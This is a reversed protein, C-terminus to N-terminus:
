RKIEKPALKLVKILTAVEEETTLHSFCIRISSNARNMDNYIAEIVYSYPDKRASCASVTSVCIDHKELYGAVVAAKLGKLSVNLIYPSGNSPSNIQFNEDGKLVDVVEDYYHKVIQYHKESEEFAIRLTKALMVNVPWNSTGARLEYEQDGGVLLPELQVARKKVLLGSGKLGYLKHASLSLLDINALNLPLKGIGQTADVHFFIHPYNEKLFLAIEEIDNISGTENNVQMISVLITDKRIASKLVQLEVKGDQNVPLYTVEFGFVKELQECVKLVSPHEVKTTIIHKGRNQYKLAVGKIATNNAETAGSTFIVEEPKVKLIDAIQKRARVQLSDVQAGMIHMSASNAYYKKLLQNYAELIEPNIPTTAAYDFYIM